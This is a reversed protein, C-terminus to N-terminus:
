MRLVEIIICYCLFLYDFFVKYNFELLKGYIIGIIVFEKLELIRGRCM